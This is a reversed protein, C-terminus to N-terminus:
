IIDAFYRETKRFYFIGALFILISSLVAIFLLFYDIKTIGFFASRATEIISCMPNLSLLWKYKEGVMSVPYIVPTIFMFMQIFFPTIYKVDRYKVNLSALFCGIGVSSLFTASLLIPLLVVINIFKTLDITFKYYFMIFILVLFSIAFDVLGTLSSSIPIILRPFYIKQIINANGVISNSSHTFTFSFYNWLLLGVFVFVPYPINDSPIKGLKGFFFNFIVMACIPQFIVWFAGMVTQKYRIKIDRWVFFYALERYAWLERLNIQFLKEQPNIEILPKNFYNDM